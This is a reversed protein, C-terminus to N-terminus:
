LGQWDALDVVRQAPPTGLVVKSAEVDGTVTAGPAVVTDRGVEVGPSVVANAGVFAGEHLIVREFVDNRFTMGDETLEHTVGVVSCNPGCQVGTALDANEVYAGANVDVGEGITSKKVSSREYLRSGDGIDSDHVTVYERIEAQGVTSDVIRASEDISSM